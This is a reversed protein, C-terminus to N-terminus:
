IANIFKKFSNEVKFEIDADLAKFHKKGCKIKDMENTRLGKINKTGKTEVIFYMKKENDVDLLVAWDPNYNGIPTTVKFWGPLKTYCIINKNKELDKAFKEEIESDCVVYDYVSNESEVLKDSLYGYLEETEFLEQAYYDGIKTYKIGDILIHNMEQSIIRLSEEIYEQPNKKFQNLTESEILVINL